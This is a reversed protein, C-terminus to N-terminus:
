KRSQEDIKDALGATWISLLVMGVTPANERLFFAVGVWPISALLLRHGRVWQGTWGAGSM